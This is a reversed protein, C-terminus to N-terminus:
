ECTLDDRNIKDFFLRVLNEHINVLKEQLEAIKQTDAIRASQLGTLMEDIRQAEDLRGRMRTEKTKPIDTCPVEIGAAKM